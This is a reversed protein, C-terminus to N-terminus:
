IWWSDSLCEKKSKASGTKRKATATASDLLKSFMIILHAGTGWSPYEFINYQRLASAGSTSVDSLFILSSTGNRYKLLSAKIAVDCDFDIKEFIQKCNKTREHSKWASLVATPSKYSLLIAKGKSCLENILKIMNDDGTSFLWDFDGSIIYMEESQRYYTFMIPVAHVNVESSSAKFDRVFFPSSAKVLMREKFVYISSALIAFLSLSFVYVNAYESVIKKNLDSPVDGNWLFNWTIKSFEISASFFSIYVHHEDYIKQSALMWIAFIVVFTGIFSVTLLFPFVVASAIIEIKGFIYIAARWIFDKSIEIYRRM